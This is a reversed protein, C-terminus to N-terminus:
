ARKRDRGDVDCRSHPAASRMGGDGGHRPGTPNGGYSLRRGTPDPTPGKRHGRLRRWGRRGALRRWPLPPAGTPPRPRAARPAGRARPRARGAAQPWRAGREPRGTAGGAGRNTAAGTVPALVLRGVGGPPAPPSSAAAGWWRGQQAPPASATRPSSPTQSPRQGARAGNATGRSAAPRTTGGGGAPVQSHRGMKSSAHPSRERWPSESRPADGRCERGVGM